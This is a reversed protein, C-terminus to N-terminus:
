RTAKSACRCLIIPAIRQVTISSLHMADTILQVYVLCLASNVQVCCLKHSFLVLQAAHRFGAAALLLCALATRM